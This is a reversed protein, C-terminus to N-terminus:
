EAPSFFKYMRAEVVQKNRELDSFFAVLEQDHTTNEPFICKGSERIVRICHALCAEAILCYLFNRTGHREFTPAAMKQDFEKYGKYASKVINTADIDVRDIKNLLIKLVCANCDYAAISLLDEWSKTGLCIDVLPFIDDQLVAELREQNRCDPRTVFGNPILSRLRDSIREFLYQCDVNKYQMAILHSLVSSVESEPAYFTVISDLAAHNSLDLGRSVLLDFIKIQDVPKQYVASLCLDLIFAKQLRGKSNKVVDGLEDRLAFKQKNVDFRGKKIAQYTQGVEVYNAERSFLFSILYTTANQERASSLWLKRMCFLRLDAALSHGEIIWWLENDDMNGVNMRANQKIFDNTLITVWLKCVQRLRMLRAIDLYSGCGLFSVIRQVLESPFGMAGNQSLPNLANGTPLLSVNAKPIPQGLTGKMALGQQFCAALILCSFVVFSNYFIKM